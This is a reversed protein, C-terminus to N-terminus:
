TDRKRSPALYCLEEFLELLTVDLIENAEWTLFINKMRTSTDPVDVPLIGHAFYM